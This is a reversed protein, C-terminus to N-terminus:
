RTARGPAAGRTLLQAGSRSSDDDFCKTHYDRERVTTRGEEHVISGGCLVCTATAPPPVPGDDLAMADGYTDEDFRAADVLPEVPPM